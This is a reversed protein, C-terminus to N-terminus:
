QNQCKGIKCSGIIKMARKGTAQFYELVIAIIFVQPLLKIQTLDQGGKKLL